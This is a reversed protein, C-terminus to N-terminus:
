LLQCSAILTWSEYAVNPDKWLICLGFDDSGIMFDHRWRLYGALCSGLIRTLRLLLIGYTQRRASRASNNLDMGLVVSM